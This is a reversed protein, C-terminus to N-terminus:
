RTVSPGDCHPTERWGAAAEDLAALLEDMEPWSEYLADADPEGRLKAATGAESWALAIAAAILDPM